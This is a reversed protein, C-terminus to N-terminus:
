NEVEENLTQRRKVVENARDIHTGINTALESYTAPDFQVMARLYVVLKNNILAVMEHKIATANKSNGEEATAENWKM